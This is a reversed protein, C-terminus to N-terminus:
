LNNPHPQSHAIVMEQYKTKHREVEFGKNKLYAVANTLKDQPFGHKKGESEHIKEILKFGEPTFDSLVIKGQMHHQNSNNIVELTEKDTDYIIFYPASGFHANIKAKLGADTEAPICIRM